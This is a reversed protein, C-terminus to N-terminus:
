EQQSLVERQYDVLIEAKYCRSDGFEKERWGGYRSEYIHPGFENRLESKMFDIKSVKNPNWNKPVFNDLEAMRRDLWFERRVRSESVKIKLKLGDLEKAIRNLEISAEKDSMQNDMIKNLTNEIKAMDHQYNQLASATAADTSAMYFWSIIASPGFINRAVGGANLKKLRNLARSLKRRRKKWDDYSVNARSSHDYWKKYAPDARMSELKTQIARKSAGPNLRKFKLWENNWRRHTKDFGHPSDANFVRGYEANDVNVKRQHFWKKMTENQPLEHHWNPYKALGLYDLAGIGDNGAFGYLNFGGIDEGIPDRSLWRGQSADYYRYNYYSLGLDRDVVESSFGYDMEAAKAGSSVLVKGFADYQAHMVVAGTSDLYETINKNGDTIPFFDEGSAADREVLLKDGWYYTKALSAESAGNSRTYKAIANYGDYVWYTYSSVNNETVVKRYRRGMHDYEMFATKGSAFTVKTLRNNGNWELTADNGADAPLRKMLTNGDEDYSQAAVGVATYQNLANVTYNTTAGGETSTKRNGIGDFDYAKDFTNNSHDVNVVEGKNNYGVNITPAGETFATGTAAIATRQGIGNV